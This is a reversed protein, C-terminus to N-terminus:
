LQASPDVGLLLAKGFIPYKPIAHGQACHAVYSFILNSLSYVLLILISEKNKEVM